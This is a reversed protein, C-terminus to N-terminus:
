PSYHKMAMSHEYKNWFVKSSRQIYKGEEQSRLWNLLDQSLLLLILTGTTKIKKKNKKKFKNTSM